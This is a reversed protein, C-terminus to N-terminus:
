IKKTQESKQEISSRRMELIGLATGELMGAPVLYPM